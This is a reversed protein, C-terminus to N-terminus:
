TNESNFLSLFDFAVPRSLIDALSIRLHASKIQMEIQLIKLQEKVVPINGSSQFHALTVGKNLYPVELSIILYQGM